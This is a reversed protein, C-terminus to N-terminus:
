GESSLEYPMLLTRRVEGDSCALLLYNSVYYDLLADADRFAMENAKENGLAVKGDSRRRVKLHRVRGGSVVSLTAVVGSTSPSSPRVLFTGDRRGVLLSECTERTM